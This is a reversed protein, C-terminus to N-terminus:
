FSTASFSRVEEDTVEKPKPSPILLVYAPVGFADALRQLTLITPNQAGNELKSIWTRPLDMRAALVRQSLGSKVRAEVLNQRVIEALEGGTRTPHPEVPVVARMVLLVKHCKVCSRSKPM